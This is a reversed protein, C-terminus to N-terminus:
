ASEPDGDTEPSVLRIVLSDLDLAQRVESATTKLVTEIDLSERMRATVEGTLRERAARRQTDRFLRASDLALEFQTAFAQLFATEEASWIGDAEGKRFGLVGVVTDRIKLPLALTPGAPGDGQVIQGTEEAELMEPKYEGEVSQIQQPTYRYGWGPRSRLLDAWAQHSLEGYARREAELAAQSEAYLQANDLAVAVQDAM